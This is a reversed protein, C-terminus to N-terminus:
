GRVKMHMHVRTYGWVDAHPYGGGMYVAVCTCVSVGQCTCEWGHACQYRGRLMHVGMCTSMSVRGRVHVDGCMHM